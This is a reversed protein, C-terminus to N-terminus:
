PMKCQSGGEDRMRRAPQVVHSRIMGLAGVPEVGHGVAQDRAAEVRMDRMEFRGGRRTFLNCAHVIFVVDGGDLRRAGLRTDAVEIGVRRHVRMREGGRSVRCACDHRNLLM